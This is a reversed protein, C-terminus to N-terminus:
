IVEKKNETIAPLVALIELGWFLRFNGEFKLVNLISPVSVILYIIEFSGKIQDLTLDKNTIKSFSL